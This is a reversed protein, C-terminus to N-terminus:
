NKKKTELKLEAFPDEVVDDEEVEVEEVKPAAVKPAEVKAVEVDTPAAEESAPEKAAKPVLVEAAVCPLVPYASSIVMLVVRRVAAVENRYFDAQDRIYKMTPRDFSKDNGLFTDTYKNELIALREMEKSLVELNSVEM